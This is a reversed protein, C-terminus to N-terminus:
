EKEDHTNKINFFWLPYDLLHMSSFPLLDLSLLENWLPETHQM